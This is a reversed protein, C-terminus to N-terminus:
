QVIEVGRARLTQVAQAGQTSIKTQALGLMRLNSLALLPSPDRVDTASLDLTVLSRRKAISKV